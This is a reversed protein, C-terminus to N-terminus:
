SSVYRSDHENLFRKVDYEDLTWNDRNLRKIIKSSFLYTNHTTPKEGITDWLISLALNMSGNTHEPGWEFDRPETVTRKTLDGQVANVDEIYDECLQYDEDFHRFGSESLEPVIDKCRTCYGWNSEVVVKVDGPTNSFRTGHYYKM